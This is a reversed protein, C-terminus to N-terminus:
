RGPRLSHESVRIAHEMAAQPAVLMRGPGAALLSPRLALLKRPSQRNLGTHWTALAPRPFSAQSHGCSRDDRQRFRMALSSRVSGPIWFSWTVPYIGRLPLSKLRALGTPKTKCVPCGGRLRVRPKQSDLSGDGGLFRADRGSIALQCRRYRKTCRTWRVLM